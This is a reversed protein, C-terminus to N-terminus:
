LTAKVEHPTVTVAPPETTAGVGPKKRSDINKLRLFPSEVCYWSVAACLCSLPLVILTLLYPHLSRGLYFITLQQIPWGYLYIGYSLDAKKGWANLKVKPSFAVYFLGYAGFIMLAVTFGTTVATLILVALSIGFLLPSLRIKDRYLYMTTGSLFCTVLRLKGGMGAPIHASIQHLGPVSYLFGINLLVGLTFLALTWKRQRLFGLWGIAMLLLYCEFEIAISWLSGNLNEPVPNQAFTPLPVINHLRFIDLFLKKLPISHLYAASGHAGLLGFVFVTSLVAAIYGPYIRLIRKKLYDWATKSHQWSNAILFGSIVFFFDVAVRGLAKQGHTLLTLPEGNDHLLSFSHNVIVLGALLFRLFNFNNQRGSSAEELTIQPM